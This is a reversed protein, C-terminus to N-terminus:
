SNTILIYHYITFFFFIIIGQVDAVKCTDLIENRIHELTENSSDKAKVISSIIFKAVMDYEDIRFSKSLIIIYVNFFFIYIYLFFSIYIM